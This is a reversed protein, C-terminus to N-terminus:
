SLNSKCSLHRNRSLSSFCLSLDFCVETKCTKRSVSIQFLSLSIMVFRERKLCILFSRQRELSQCSLCIDYVHARSVQLVSKQRKRDITCIHELSQCSLWIDYVQAKSVQLVSKEREREAKCTEGVCTYWLDRERERIQRALTEFCLSRDQFDGSCMHVVSRERKKDTKCTQLVCTYSLYVTVSIQRALRELCLCREQL